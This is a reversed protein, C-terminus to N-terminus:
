YPRNVQRPGGNFPGRPLQLIHMEVTMSPQEDAIDSEPVIDMSSSGRMSRHLPLNSGNMDQKVVQWQGV